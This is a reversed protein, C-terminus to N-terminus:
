PGIKIVWSKLTGVSRLIEMGPVLVKAYLGKHVRKLDMSYCSPDVHCMVTTTLSWVNNVKAAKTRFERRLPLM